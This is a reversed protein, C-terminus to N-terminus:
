TQTTPMQSTPAKVWRWEEGRELVISVIEGGVEPDRIWEIIARICAEAIVAWETAKNSPRALCAFLDKARATSGDLVEDIIKPYATFVPRTKSLPDIMTQVQGSSEQIHVVVGDVPGSGDHGLFVAGAADPKMNAILTPKTACLAEIHKQMEAAWSAAMTTLNVPKAQEAFKEKAIKRADFEGRSTEGHAIGQCLFITSKDLPVIKCGEDKYVQGINERSDIAAAAFDDTVRVVFYTGHAPQCGHKKTM